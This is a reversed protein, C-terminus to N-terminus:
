GPVAAAQLRPPQCSGIAGLCHGENSNAFLVLMRTRKSHQFKTRFYDQIKEFLTELEKIQHKSYRNESRIKHLTSHVVSNLEKHYDHNPTVNLYLSIYPHEANVNDAIEKIRDKIM